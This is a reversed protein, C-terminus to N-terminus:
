YTMANRSNLSNFQSNYSTTQTQPPTTFRRIQGIYIQSIRSTHHWTTWSRQPSTNTITRHLKYLIPPTLDHRYWIRQTPPYHLSVLFGICPLKQKGVGLECITMLPQTSCQPAKISWRFNNGVSTLNEGNEILEQWFSSIYHVLTGRSIIHLEYAVKSIFLFNVSFTAKFVKSM